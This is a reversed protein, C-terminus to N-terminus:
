SPNAGTLTAGLEFPFLVAGPEELHQVLRVKLADSPAHEGREISSISQQTVGVKEALERQTLFLLKRQAAVNQGWHRRLEDV